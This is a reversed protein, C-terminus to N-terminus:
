RLLAPTGDAPWCADRSGRERLRLDIAVASTCWARVPSVGMRRRAPRGREAAVVTEPRRALTEPQGRRPEVRNLSSNSSDSVANKSDGVAINSDDDANKSDHSLLKATVSQM